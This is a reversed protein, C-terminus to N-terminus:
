QNLKLSKSMIIKSKKEYNFGLKFYLSIARLNKPDVGLYIKKYKQFNKLILNNIQPFVKLFIGKGQFANLVLFGIYLRRKLLVLKFNAVHINKNFVGYLIENNPLNNLYDILDKKTKETKGYRAFIIFKKVYVSNITRVYESKIDKTLLKKIIYTL